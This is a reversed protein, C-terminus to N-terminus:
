PKTTMLDAVKQATSENFHGTKKKYYMDLVAHAVPASVVGGHGGHELL